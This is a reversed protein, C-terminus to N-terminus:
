KREIVQVNAEMEKSAEEVPLALTMGRTLTSRRWVVAAMVVGVIYGTGRAINPNTGSVLMSGEIFRESGLYSCALSIILQAWEVMHHTRILGNILNGIGTFLDDGVM